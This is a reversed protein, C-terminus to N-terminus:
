SMVRTYELVFNDVYMNRSMIWETQINQPIFNNYIQSSVKILAIEYCYNIRDFIEGGIRDLILGVSDM